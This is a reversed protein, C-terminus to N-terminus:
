PRRSIGDGYHGSRAGLVTESVGTGLCHDVARGELSLRAANMGELSHRWRQLAVIDTRRATQGGQQAGFGRVEFPDANPTERM